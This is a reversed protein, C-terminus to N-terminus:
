YTDDGLDKQLKPNKLVLDTMEVNVQTKFKPLEQERERERKLPAKFQNKALKDIIFNQIEHSLDLFLHESLEFMKVRKLFRLFIVEFCM